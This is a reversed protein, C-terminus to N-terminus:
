SDVSPALRPPIQMYSFSQSIIEKVVPAAVMGGTYGLGLSRDPQRVMVLVCIRPQEAPAGAMFSSIYQNEQYGRGDKRPIQATGTKGFVRYAALYASHASGQKNEVVGTLATTLLDHATKPSIVWDAAPSSGVAAAPSLGVGATQPQAQRGFDKVVAGEPSIIARAVRPQVMQGGNALVCFARILQLPTAAVPGQGYAARTLAYEGWKWEKLPMLIGAGEGPLDIGTRRGFGFKEIMCFFYKKGMKQAIKAAGINSSKIIVEAVSLVGYPHKYESITGFGKGSYPGELCDIKDGLTFFGGELAAAVTFPKFVSGPEVPDTLARNRRLRDDTQRAQAPDFGPWNALALVEGNRPDMVIAVAGAAHFKEVVKKLEEEVISQIVADLTLVLTDGDQSDSGIGQTRIPRRMVDSRLLLKGSKGALNSDYYLEVGELGSGDIKTSGIVHGALTGQPYQRQYESEVVVGRIALQRVQRAIDDSVARKVWLFRRDRRQLIDALLKQRSLDLIPALKRATDGPDALLYPDIRISFVRNSMALPRGQRDVIAGRCALQPIEKRQQNAARQGMLQAQYYQLQWCRGLVVLLGAILLLLFLLSRWGHGRTDSM